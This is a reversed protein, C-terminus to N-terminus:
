YIFLYYQSLPYQYIIHGPLMQRAENRSTVTSDKIIESVGAIEERETVSSPFINAHRLSVYKSNRPDLPLVSSPTESYSARVNKRVASEQLGKRRPSFGPYFEEPLNSAACPTFGGKSCRCKGDARGQWHQAGPQHWGAWATSIPARPHWLM